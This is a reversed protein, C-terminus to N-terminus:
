AREAKANEDCHDEETMKITVEPSDSGDYRAIKRSYTDMVLTLFIFGEATRLYTLNSVRM